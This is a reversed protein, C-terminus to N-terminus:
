LRFILGLYIYIFFKMLISIKWRYKLSSVKTYGIEMLDLTVIKESESHM